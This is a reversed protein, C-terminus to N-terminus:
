DDRDDAPRDGARDDPRRRGDASQDDPRQPGDDPRRPEDDPRRPEDGPRDDTRGGPRRQRNGPRTGERRPHHDPPSRRQNGRRGEPPRQPSAPRGDAPGHRPPEGPNARPQRREPGTRVAVWGGLGGFVAPYVVGMLGAAMTLQPRIALEVAEGSPSLRWTFLFTGAVALVAYGVVVSAGAKAGETADVVDSRSAVMYGGWALTAVPVLLWVVTPVTGVLVDLLRELETTWTLGGPAAQSTALGTVTVDGRVLNMWAGVVGFDFGVNVFHANYFMFGVTDFASPLFESLEEVDGSDGMSSLASTTERFEIWSLIATLVVGFAWAGAGFIAGRKVDFASTAPRRQQARSM